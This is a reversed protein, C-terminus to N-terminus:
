GAISPQVPHGAFLNQLAGLVNQGQKLMTSLYGRITCFDDAGQRTRFGGSIKQKVKTMRVDREALNNTFPVNFDHMFALVEARKRDLRCLLNRAPTQKPRGRKDRPPKQPPPNAEYGVKLLKSYRAEFLCQKLCPLRRRGQTQATDVATKIDLLLTTFEKAWEQGQEGLAILERLHHSNCLSHSCSYTEYSYWGDHVATGSYDPLIGAADSGARGRSDHCTYYTLSETGASHLWHLHGEVRLGTEDFHVVQSDLLMEKIKLTVPALLEACGRRVRHLTGPSISAGCIDSLLQATRAYPLLQYDQLYVALAKIHPGYQVKESVETPFPASTCHGCACRRTQACHQTVNLCLPPLDFVQRHEETTVPAGSLSEGCAACIDPAHVLTHDPHEVPQLTCGHRGLQGGPRRGSKKRLSNPAPRKALGDSSPPKSSNHSNKNLREELEKVRAALLANQEQLLAVQEQLPSVVAFAADPGKAHLSEFQERTLM